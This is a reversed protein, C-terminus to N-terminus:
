KENRELITRLYGLLNRGNEHNITFPKHTTIQFEGLKNLNVYVALLHVKKYEKQALKSKFINTSLLEFINFLMLIVAIGVITHNIFSMITTMPFHLSAAYLNGLIAAFTFKLIFKLTHSM